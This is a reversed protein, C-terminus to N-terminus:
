TYVYNGYIRMCQCMQVVAMTNALYHQCIALNLTEMGLEKGVVDDSTQVCNVHVPFGMDVTHFGKPCQQLTAITAGVM